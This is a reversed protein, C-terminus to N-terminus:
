VITADTTNHGAYEPVLLKLAELTDKRHRSRAANELRDIASCLEQLDSTRPAALLLSPHSSPLLPEGEHLLEEYLKEGPRLGTVQIEVDENPQLGALRIMQEALEMIKVPAGMELVHIRGTNREGATGLASAQLVLEV